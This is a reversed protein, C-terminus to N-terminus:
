HSLGQEFTLSFLDISEVTLDGVGATAAVQQMSAVFYAENTVTAILLKEPNLWLIPMGAAAVAEHTPNLKVQDTSPTAKLQNGHHGFLWVERIGQAVYSDHRRQWDDPRLSAYQIEIAIRRGDGLTVMVDAVRERRSSSAQEEVVEADPYNARVWKAIQGKGEIHFLSEPAHATSKVMHRFGQCHKKRNVTNIEPTPCEPIPCFLQTKAFARVAVATGNVLEYLGPEGSRYRAFLFRTEGEQFAAM